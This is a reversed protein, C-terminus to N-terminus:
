LPAICPSTATTYCSNWIQGTSVLDYRGMRSIIRCWWPKFAKNFTHLNKFHRKFRWHILFKPKAAMLMDAWNYYSLVFPEPIILFVACKFYSYLVNISHIEKYIDESANKLKTKIDSWDMIALAISNYLTDFYLWWIYIDKECWIVAIRVKDHNATIGVM